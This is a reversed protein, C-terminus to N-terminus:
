QIMCPMLVGANPNDKAEVFMPSLTTENGHKDKELKFKVSIMPDKKSTRMAKTMDLLYQANFKINVYGKDSKPILQDLDPYKGHKSEDGVTFSFTGNFTFRNESTDLAISVMDYKGWDKVVQKLMAIHEKYFFYKKGAILEPLPGESEYVEKVLRHGDCAYVFLQRRESDGELIVANLHYRTEDKSAIPALAIIRKILETDNVLM